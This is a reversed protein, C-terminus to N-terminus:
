RGETHLGGCRGAGEISRRRPTPHHRRGSDACRCTRSALEGIISKVLDIHSRIARLDRFTHAKRKWRELSRSRRSAIGEYVVELGVDRCKMAIQEAGNSHGDLGPKAIVVRPPRGLETELEACQNRLSDLAEADGQASSAIDIGTPARYEGFCERLAAGWEGTTVGAHACNISAPM